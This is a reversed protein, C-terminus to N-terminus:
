SDSPADPVVLERLMRGQPDSVTVLWRRSEPVFVPDIHLREFVNKIGSLDARDSVQQAVQERTLGPRLAAAQAPEGLAVFRVRVTSLADPQIGGQRADAASITQLQLGKDTTQLAARVELEADAIALTTDLGAQGALAAQAEAFSRGAAELFQPLGGDSM